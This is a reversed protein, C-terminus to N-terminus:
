GAEDGSEVGSSARHFYFPGQFNEGIAEGFPPFSAQNKAKM